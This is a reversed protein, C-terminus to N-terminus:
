QPCVNLFCYSVALRTGIRIERAPYLAAEEDFETDRARGVVAQGGLKGYLRLRVISLSLNGNLILKCTPKRYFFSAIYKRCSLRSYMALMIYPRGTLLDRLHQQKGPLLPRPRRMLNPM